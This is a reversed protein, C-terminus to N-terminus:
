REEERRAKKEARDLYEGVALRILASRDLGTTASLGDLREVQRATLFHHVRRMSADSKKRGMHANYAWLLGWSL